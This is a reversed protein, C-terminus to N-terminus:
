IVAPPLPVTVTVPVPPLPEPVFLLPTVKLLEEEMLLLGPPPFTVTEPVPTPDAAADNAPPTNILL